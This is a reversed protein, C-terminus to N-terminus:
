ELSPTSVPTPVFIYNPTPPRENVSIGFVLEKAPEPSEDTVKIGIRTLNKTVLIDRTGLLPLPNGHPIQEVETGERDGEVKWELTIIDEENFVFNQQESISRGNLRFYEIQSEEAVVEFTGSKEDSPENPNSKSYTKIEYNFTGIQRTPFAYECESYGRGEKCRPKLSKEDFTKEHQIVGQDNKFIIEVKQFNNPNEISWKLPVAEGKKFNERRVTKDVVEAPEPATITVNTTQTAKDEQNNFFLNTRRYSAIIEFTYNGPEDQGTPYQECKVVHGTESCVPEQNNQSPNNTFIQNEQNKLNNLAAKDSILPEEAPPTKQILRFDKVRHSNYIEWNLVAQDPNSPNALIVRNRPEFDKIVVPDPYLYKWILFGSLAILGFLALILVFIQWVPRSKWELVGKPMETTIPLDQKDKIDVQFNIALPRGIWPRRWWPRPKVTLDMEISKSPLLKIEKPELKYKFLQYEDRNILSVLMERVLNGRNIVTLKYKGDKRSVKGLITYLGAGITYDVPIDIYVLDLLILDPNNASHLRITPSYTGALISSPPYFELLILGQTNPNLELASVDLLGAGELGTEPYSIKLSNENLEPCTLHFREVRASRNEVKVEVQLVEEPKFVLTKSPNTAPQISFIPDSARIVTQEKLLVKIQGPFSIPTDQPYHEFSDVVFTYDYTGPLADVPIELKFPVQNSIEGPALTLSARPSDSWNSIKEFIKDFTFSLDIIASKSGENSVVVNIEVTEGPRGYQIGPPDIIVYLPNIKTQMIM